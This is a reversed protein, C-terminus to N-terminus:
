FFIKSTIANERERERNQNTPQSTSKKSNKKKYILAQHTTRTPLLLAIFRHLARDSSSFLAGGDLMQLGLCRSNLDWMRVEALEGNIQTFAVSLGVAGWRAKKGRASSVCLRFRIHDSMISAIIGEEERGLRGSSLSVTQAQFDTLHDTNAERWNIRKDTFPVCIKCRSRCRQEAWHFGACSHWPHQSISIM